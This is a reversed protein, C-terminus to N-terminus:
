GKSPAASCSGVVTQGSDSTVAFEIQSFNLSVQELPDTDTQSDGKTSISSVAVNSMTIKLFVVPAGESDSPKQATLVASKALNGGCSQLLLQPSATDTKKVVTMESVNAGARRVPQGTALGPQAAGFNFSLIEIEGKHKSDNSEGDIGDIKLFAEFSM